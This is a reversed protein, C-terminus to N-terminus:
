ALIFRIGASCVGFLGHLKAVGGFVDALDRHFKWGQPDTMQGVNGARLHNAHLSTSLSGFPAPYGGTLFSPSPPGPINDLPHKIVFHKLSIWLVWAFVASLLATQFSFELHLDAM